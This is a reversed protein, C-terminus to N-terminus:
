ELTLDAWISSKIYANLAEKLKHAKKHHKFNFRHLYCYASAEKLGLLSAIDCALKYESGAIFVCKYYLESLEFELPNTFNFHVKGDKFRDDRGIKKDAYRM